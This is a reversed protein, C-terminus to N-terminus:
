IKAMAELRNLTLSNQNEGLIWSLISFNRECNAQTPNISFIRCALEALHRPQIKISEWWIKSHKISPIYSFEYPPLRSEFQCLQTM